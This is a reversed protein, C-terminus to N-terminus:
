GYLKSVTGDDGILYFRGDANILLINEGLANIYDGQVAALQQAASGDFAVRYPKNGDSRNVCYIGRETVNIGSVAADLLVQADSGDLACSTLRKGNTEDQYYVRGNWLQAFGREPMPILTTEGTVLDLMVFQGTATNTYYFTRGYAGLDYCGRSELTERNSGDADMVILSDNEDLTGYIRGGVTLAFVMKDGCVLAPDGGEVPVRYLEGSSQKIYYLYSDVVNIQSAIGKVVLKATGATDYAYIGIEDSEIGMRYIMGGSECAVGGNQLNGGTSGFKFPVELSARASYANRKGDSVCLRYEPQAGGSGPQADTYTGATSEVKALTKFIGNEGDSREVTCAYDTVFPAWTIVMGAAEDYKVVLTGIDPLPVPTPTPKATPSPLSSLTSAPSLSGSVSVDPSQGTCGASVLLTCLMLLVLIRKKTVMGTEKEEGWLAASQPSGKGPCGRVPEIANYAYVQVIM